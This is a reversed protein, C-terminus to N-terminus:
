GKVEFGININESSVDYPSPAKKEKIDYLRIERPTINNEILSSRLASLNEKISDKLNSSNSYIHLNLQNKDYMTLKLNLEGYDKLKLDIDVYFRKQSDKHINIHGEKMQEWSFPVYLSSANSLHSVLQNYDIQMTLKDIQKLIEQKNPHDSKTIEDSAKSLIAKLDHNIIEKVNNNTSLQEKSTFLLLKNIDTKVEKANIIDTKNVPNEQHIQLKSVVEKITKGIEQLQNQNEQLIQVLARSSAGKIPQSNLIDSLKESLVTVNFIKSKSLTKTLSELINKLEVQPNQVNKLKSELFVGSNDIKHKLVSQSMDKIDVLFSKLRNQISLTKEDSKLTSVLDKLTNSISGLNKLTPNNKLLNLLAKDSSSDTATQKLLTNIISKLDKSKSIDQSISKLELPTANKIVESLAKNTNTLIIDLQKNTVLNIM